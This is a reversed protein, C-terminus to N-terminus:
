ALNMANFTHLLLHASERDRADVQFIPASVESSELLAEVEIYLEDLSTSSIKEAHTIGVVCPTLLEAPKFYSLQHKISQPNLAIDARILLILGWLSNNVIKWLFSYRQQGPVGYLGLAIDDSLNIRGYDIGVTTYEKGINVSSKVETSVTNISSLTNVLETKGAGVDGIIALKQYNDKNEETNVM